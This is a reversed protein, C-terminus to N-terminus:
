KEKKRPKSDLFSKLIIAASIKDVTAKDQRDKKRLGGEIMTRLAMQSTFREDALHIHKEPYKFKLKKIFPNIHKVSESPMNNMQVPYGIVFEDVENTKLYNEIFEDFGAPSVTDLPSAFIQMPDTVALGIRKTGYDIALIRGM